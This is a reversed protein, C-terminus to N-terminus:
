PPTKFNRMINAVSVFPYGDASANGNQLTSIVLKACLQIISILSFGTYGDIFRSEHRGQQHQIPQITYRVQGRYLKPRRGWLTETPHFPFPMREIVLWLWRNLKFLTSWCIIVPRLSTPSTAESFRSFLLSDCLRLGQFNSHISSNVNNAICTGSPSTM